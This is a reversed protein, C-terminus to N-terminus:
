RRLIPVGSTNRSDAVRTPGPRKAPEMLQAIRIFKMPDVPTGNQRIEYHLHPGTSRGSNGVLGIQQGAQVREGRKVQRQSLHAYLTEYGNNHCLVIHHGYDKTYLSRKVVGPGTAKVPDGTKGRFDIGEHFAKRGNIPDIRTGFPSSIATPVPKGLPLNAISAFHDDPHRRGQQELREKPTAIFLGGSHPPENTLDKDIRQQPPMSGAIQKKDGGSVVICAHPQDHQQAKLPNSSAEHEAKEGEFHTLSAKRAAALQVKLADVEAQLDILDPMPAPHSREAILQDIQDNLEKNTKFAVIGQLTGAVLILICLFGVTLALKSTSDSLVRTQKAGPTDTTESHQHTHDMDPFPNFSTCSRM